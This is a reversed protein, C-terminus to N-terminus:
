GAVRKRPIRPVELTAHISCLADGSQLIRMVHSRPLMVAWPRARLELNWGNKWSGRLPYVEISGFFAQLHTRAKDGDVRQIETWVAELRAQVDEVTAVPVVPLPAPKSLEELEVRAARLRADKEKAADILFEVAGKAIADALRRAELTLRDVEARLTAIKEMPTNRRALEEIQGNVMEAMKLVGTPDALRDHLFRLLPEAVDEAHARYDNGCCTEGHDRHRSCVIYRYDRGRRSNREVSMTKGCQCTLLGAIPHSTKRYGVGGKTTRVRGQFRAQVRDWLDQPIIRLTEDQFSVHEEPPRPIKQTPHRLTIKARERQAETLLEEPIKRHATLGWTWEGIYKRNRLMCRIAKREMAIGREHLYVTISRQGKGEAYMTFVQLVVEAEAPNIAISTGIKNGQERREPPLGEPWEPTFTYGYLYGGASFHERVKEAMGAHTQRSLETLFNENLGSEVHAMLRQSPLTYDTGTNCAILKVSRARFLNAIEALRGGRDLRNSADILLADFPLPERSRLMALIRQFQPRAITSAGSMNPADLTPMDIFLLDLFVHGNRTAWTKCAEIQRARSNEVDQKRDSTRGYMACRLPAPAAHDRILKM